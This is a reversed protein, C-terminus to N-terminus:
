PAVLLSFAIADTVFVWGLSQHADLYAPLVSLLMLVHGVSLLFLARDALKLHFRSFDHRRRAFAFGLLTGSLCVFAPSALMGVASLVNAAFAANNRNLYVTAFHSLCVFLMAFGRAVDIIEERNTSRRPGIATRSASM